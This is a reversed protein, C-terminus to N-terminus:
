RSMNKWQVTIFNSRLGSKRPLAEPAITVQAKDLVGIIKDCAIKGKRERPVKIYVGDIRDEVPLFQALPNQM